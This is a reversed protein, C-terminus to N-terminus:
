ESNKREAYFDSLLKVQQATVWKFYFEMTLVWFDFMRKTKRILRHSTLKWHPVAKRWFEFM